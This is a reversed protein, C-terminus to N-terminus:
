QSEGPPPEQTGANDSIDPYDNNALTPLRQWGWRTVHDVHLDFRGTPHTYRIVFVHGWPKRPPGKPHLEAHLETQVWSRSTEVWAGGWPLNSINDPWEPPLLDDVTMRVRPTDTIGNHIGVQNVCPWLGASIHNALVPRGSTLETIPRADTLKPEAVAVWSNAGTVRDTVVVRVADPRDSPLPVSLQQWELLPRRLDSALPESGTVTWGRGTSRGFQVEVGQNWLNGAVPVTVHTGSAPEPLPYWGTTIRGTGTTTGDPQDDHWVRGPRPWPNTSIPVPRDNGFDGVTEPPTAAPLLQRRSPLQVRVADALGCGDGFMTRVGSRAVTWGPAQGIPAHVFLAVMLLVCSLCAAGLVARDPTISVLKGRSGRWRTWGWVLLAVALWPAPNRLYLWELHPAVDNTTFNPDLHNGFRQGADTFPVWWNAGAYSLSVAGVLLLLSAGTIMPGARRPLPSRLLVAALLVTPAAAVAHFHNVWKTPSLTILALAIATTIASVLVLRRVPDRGTGGRGSAIAVVVLVALTLLVPLRRAWNSTNLLTDYHVFEEYWAFSLYYWQHVKAAEVVNGLTADAFGVPVVVTASALALLVAGVRASWSQRRLWRVLWPLSVVLPAAAVVGSPSATVALAAFVTAVALTGISHRLVALEAFVLTAAACVVIVPEPRLTTGYPLFWVLFAVLLAWPVARMTGARGLTMTLLVRLLLWTALACFTPVLRMWWLSWGGLEGWFQLMYQSLVFPNETVNFMYVFNGVYGSESANRAMMLYWGDDMNAPSLFVWAMAVLLMVADAAGPRPLRPTRSPSPDRWRRWTLVLLTALALAHAILLATKLATPHSQYRADTHLEVALGTAQPLGEADTALEAVQPPLLDSRYVLPDGDRLVRVGDSGARVRYTCQGDPIPETLVQQGSIWFRVDGGQASVGMGPGGDPHTSLATGGSGSNVARLTTCPIHADLSLPRYPSLPLVTSTPASGAEPWTVVPDDAVVPALTVSLGLVVTLAALAAILWNGRERGSDRERSASPPIISPPTVGM